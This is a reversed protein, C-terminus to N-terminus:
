NSGGFYIPLLYGFLAVFNFIIEGQIMRLLILSSDWSFLIKRLGYVIGLAIPLDVMHLYRGSIQYWALHTSFYSFIAVLYLFFVMFLFTVPIAKVEQQVKDMEFHKRIGRIIGLISVITLLMLFFYWAISLKNIMQGYTFHYTVFFISSMRFFIPFGPYSLEKFTLFPNLSVKDALVFLEAPSFFGTVAVGLILGTVGLWLFLFIEKTKRWKEVGPFIYLIMFFLLSVLLILGHRKTLLVMGMGIWLLVQHSFPFTNKVMIRVVLTMLGTFLFIALSDSNLVSTIYSFQPHFAVFGSTSFASPIRLNRSFVTSAGIFVLYVTFYSFIGSILRGIYLSLLIQDDSVLRMPISVCWYYLPARESLFNWSFSTISTKDFEDSGPDPTPLESRKWFQTQNLSKIINKQIEKDETPLSFLPLRSLTFAFEFHAPEDNGLWPPIAIIFLLTKIAVLPWFLRGFGRVWDPPDNEHNFKEVNKKTM